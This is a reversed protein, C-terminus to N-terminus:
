LIPYLQDFPKLLVKFKSAAEHSSATRVEVIFSLAMNELETYSQFVSLISIDLRIVFKTRQRMMTLKPVSINIFYILVHHSIDLMLSLGTMGAM